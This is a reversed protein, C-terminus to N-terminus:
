PTAESDLSMFRRKLKKVSLRQKNKHSDRSATFDIQHHTVTNNVRNGAPVLNCRKALAVRGETNHIVHVRALRM